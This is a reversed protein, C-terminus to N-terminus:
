KSGCQNHLIFKRSKNIANYREKAADSLRRYYDKVEKSEEKWKRSALNSIEALDSKIRMKKLYESWSTRYVLFCNPIKGPKSSNNYKELLDEVKLEPPYPLSGHFIIQQRKVKPM